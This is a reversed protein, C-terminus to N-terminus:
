QPTHEIRHTSSLHWHQCPCRVLDYLQHKQPANVGCKGADRAFHAVGHHRQRWFGHSRRTVPPPLRHRTRVTFGHRRELFTYDRQPWEKHPSRRHPRLFSTRAHLPIGHLHVHKCTNRINCTTCTTIHTTPLHHVADTRPKYTSDSRVHSRQEITTKPSVCTVPPQVRCPSPTPLHRPVRPNSSHLPM